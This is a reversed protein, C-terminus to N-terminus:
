RLAEALKRFADAVLTSDHDGNCTYESAVSEIAELVDRRKLPEDLRDEVEQARRERDAADDRRAQEQRALDRTVKGFMQNATKM